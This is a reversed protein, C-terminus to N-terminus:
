HSGYREAALELSNQFLAPDQNYLDSALQNFESLGLWFASEGRSLMRDGCVTIATNLRMTYLAGDSPSLYTFYADSGFVDEAEKQLRTLETNNETSQPFEPSM